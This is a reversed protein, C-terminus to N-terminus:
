GAGVPRESQRATVVTVPLGHRAAVRYVEDKV